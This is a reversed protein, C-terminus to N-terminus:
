RGGKILREAAGLAAVMGRAQEPKFNVQYGNLLKSVPSLLLQVSQEFSNDVTAFLDDQEAWDSHLYVPLRQFGPLHQRCDAVSRNIEQFVQRTDLDIQHCRCFALSRNVFILVCLQGEDIGILVFDDGLDIKARYANYLSLFHFDIVAPALGALDFAEEYQTLVPRAVVAAFVKLRGPERDDVLQYEVAYDTAKGPLYDKLQWRIIDAGEAYNKLPPEVDVVFVQGAGDPLAVGIRDEKRALPGVTKKLIDVFAPLNSINAGGFGPQLIGGDIDAIQGGVLVLSGSKKRIAVARLSTSRIDVGIYTRRLMM